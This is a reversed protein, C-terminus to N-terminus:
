DWFWPRVFWPSPCLFPSVRRPLLKSRDVLASSCRSALIFNNYFPLICDPECNMRGMGLREYSTVHRVVIKSFNASTLPCPRRPRRRERSWLIINVSSLFFNWRWKYHRLEKNWIMKQFIYKKYSGKGSKSMKWSIKRGGFIEFKRM